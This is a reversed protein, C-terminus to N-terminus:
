QKRGSVLYSVGGGASHLTSNEFGQKTRLSANKAADWMVDFESKTGGAALFYKLSDDFSFLYMGENTWDISQKVNIKQEHSSYPPIYPTAKDSVYVQIQQLGMEAFYGPILDGISNHGLGLAAKGRECMMYLKTLLLRTDLPDDFSISSEIGRNASNNPEVVALLGGPKLVRLMESVVKKVDPVHILVTQCTVMDFTDDAFPLTEGKAVSYHCSAGFGKERAIQQATEISRPEMDIGYLQTGPTFFPQLVRGWHGVGCGVDLIKQVNKLQWRKAMLEVFDPNWWYDRWEGFYEQSHPKTEQNSSM